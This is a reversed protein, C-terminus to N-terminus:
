ETDESCSCTSSLRSYTQLEVTLKYVEMVQADLVKLRQEIRENQSHLAEFRQLKTKYYLPRDATDPCGSLLLPLLLLVLLRM